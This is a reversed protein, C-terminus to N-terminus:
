TEEHAKNSPKRRPKPSSPWRGFRDRVSVYSYKFCPWSGVVMATSIPDAAERTPAASGRTKLVILRYM